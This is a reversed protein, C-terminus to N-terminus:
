SFDGSEASALSLVSGVFAHDDTTAATGAQVCKTVEAHIEARTAPTHGAKKIIDHKEAVTKAANVAAHFAPDDSFAKVLKRIDSSSAM